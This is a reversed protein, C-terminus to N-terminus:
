QRDAARGQAAVEERHPLGDYAPDYVNGVDYRLVQKMLHSAAVPCATLWKFHRHARAASAQDLPRCEQNFFHRYRKAARGSSIADRKSPL